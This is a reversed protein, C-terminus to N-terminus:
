LDPTDVVRDPYRQPCTQVRLRLFVKTGLRFLIRDKHRQRTYRLSSRGGCKRQEEMYDNRRPVSTRNASQLPWPHKHSKPINRGARSGCSLVWGDKLCTAATRLEPSPSQVGREPANQPGGTGRLPKESRISTATGKGPLRNRRNRM